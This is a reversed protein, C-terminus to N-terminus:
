GFYFGQFSDQSLFSKMIKDFGPCSENLWINNTIKSQLYPISCDRLPFMALLESFKSKRNEEDNDCKVWDIICECYFDKIQKGSNYKSVWQKLIAEFEQFNYKSIDLDQSSKSYKDAIRQLLNTKLSMLSYTRSLELFEDSNENSVITLMFQECLFELHSVTSCIHQKSSLNYSKTEPFFSCLLHLFNRM